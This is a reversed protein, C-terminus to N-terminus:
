NFINSQGVDSRKIVSPSGQVNDFFIGFHKCYPKLFFDCIPCSFFVTLVYIRAM